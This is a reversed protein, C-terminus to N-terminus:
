KDDKPKDKDEKDKPKDKPKEETKDFEISSISKLSFFKYGVPVKGILGVLTATKTGITMTELLTLSSDDGDKDVVQWVTDKTEEPDATITKVKTLDVKLTKKFMLTNSLVEKGDAFRYLGQLDTVAHRRKTNKDLTGVIAPRGAKAAATIKPAPFRIATIGKLTGGLFTLEAVGSTGKDVEAYVTLKNINRYRTAGVLTVDDEPKDSVAVRVSVTQKQNDYTISRLQTLPVWTTVGDLWYITLEDRIVLAEPGAPKARSKAKGKGKGKEKPQEKPEDEAKALFALHRTGDKFTWKTVKHEKGKSDLVVITGAPAPKPADEKKPTDDALVALFSLTLILPSFLSRM